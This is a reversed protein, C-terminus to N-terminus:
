LGVWKHPWKDPNGVPSPLFGLCGGPIYLVRIFIYHSLSGKGWSTLKGSKQVMLLLSGGESNAMIVQFLGLFFLLFGVDGLSLIYRDMKLPGIKEHLLTRITSGSRTYMLKMRTTAWGKEAVLIWTERVRWRTSMASTCSNWTVASPELVQGWRTMNNPVPNFIEGTWLHCVRRSVIVYGGVFMGPVSGLPRGHDDMPAEGVSDKWCLGVYGM